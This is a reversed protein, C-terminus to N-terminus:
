LGSTAIQGGPSSYSWEGREMGRGMYYLVARSEGVGNDCFLGIERLIVSLRNYNGVRQALIATIQRQHLSYGAPADFSLPGQLANRLGRLANETGKAANGRQKGKVQMWYAQPFAGQFAVWDVRFQVGPIQSVCEQSSPRRLRRPRLESRLKGASRRPGIPPSPNM